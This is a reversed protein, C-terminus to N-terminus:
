NCSTRMLQLYLRSKEGMAKTPNTAYRADLASMEAEATHLRVLQGQLCALKDVMTNSSPQRRLSVETNCISLQTNLIDGQIMFLPDMMNRYAKQVNQNQYINGLPITRLGEEQIRLLNRRFVIINRQHSACEDDSRIKAEDRDIKVRETQMEETRKVFFQDEQLRFPSPDFCTNVENIDTIKTIFGPTQKEMIIYLGKDTDQYGIGFNGLYKNSNISLSPPFNKGFMFYVQPNGDIKYAWARIKDNCYLKTETKKALMASAVAANMNYEHTQTNGTTVWHDLTGGKGEVTKYNYINGKLGIIFFMFDKEQPKIDCMAGTATTHPPLYGIYGDHTNIYLCQEFVQSGKTAKIKIQKDFCLPGRNPVITISPSGGTVVSARLIATQFPNGAWVTDPLPSQALSSNISIFFLFTIIYYKM